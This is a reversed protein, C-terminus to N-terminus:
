KQPIWLIKWYNTIIWSRRQGWAVSLEQCRKSASLSATQLKMLRVSLSSRLSRMKLLRSLRLASISCLLTHFWLCCTFITREGRFEADRAVHLLFKSRGRACSSRMFATSHETRASRSRSFAASAWSPGLVFFTRRSCACVVPSATVCSCPWSLLFYTQKGWLGFHLNFSKKTKNKKIKKYIFCFFFNKTKKIEKKNSRGYTQFSACPSILMESQNHGSVLRIM